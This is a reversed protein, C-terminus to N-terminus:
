CAGPVAPSSFGGAVVPRAAPPQADPCGPTRRPREARALVTANPILPACTECVEEVSWVRRMVPDHCLIMLVAGACHRKTDPHAGCHCWANPRVPAAKAHAPAHRAVFARLVTLNESRASM